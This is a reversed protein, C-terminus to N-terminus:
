FSVTPGISFLMQEDIYYLIIDLSHKKNGRVHFPLPPTEMYGILCLLFNMQYEFCLLIGVALVM